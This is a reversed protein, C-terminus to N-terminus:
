FLNFPQFAFADNLFCDNLWRLTVDFANSVTSFIVRVPVTVVSQFSVFAFKFRDTFSFYITITAYSFIITGVVNHKSDFPEVVTQERYSKFGHIIIQFAVCYHLQM